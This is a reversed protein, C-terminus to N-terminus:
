ESKRVPGALSAAVLVVIESNVLRNPKRVVVKVDPIGDFIPSNKMTPIAGPSRSSSPCTSMISTAIIAYQKSAVVTWDAM